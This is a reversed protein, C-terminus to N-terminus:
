GRLAEHPLSAASQQFRLAGVSPVAQKVLLFNVSDALNLAPNIGANLHTLDFGQKVVVRTSLFVAPPLLLLNQQPIEVVAAVM